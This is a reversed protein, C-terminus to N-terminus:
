DQFIQRFAAEFSRDADLRDILSQDTGDDVQPFDAPVTWVLLGSSNTNGITLLDFEEVEDSEHISALYARVASEPNAAERDDAIVGNDNLTTIYRTM